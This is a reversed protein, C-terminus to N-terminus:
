ENETYQKLWFQYMNHAYKVQKGTVIKGWCGIMRTKIAVDIPFRGLEDYVMCNATSKKLKLVYKCFKLHVEKLSQMVVLDGSKVAM